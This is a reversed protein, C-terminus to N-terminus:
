LTMRPLAVAVSLVHRWAVSLSPINCVEHLVGDDNSALRSAPKFCRPSRPRYSSVGDVGSQRKTLDTKRHVANSVVAKRCGQELRLVQDHWRKVAPTWKRIRSISPRVM